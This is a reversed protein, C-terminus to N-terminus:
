RSFNRETSGRQRQGVPLILLGFTNEKREDDIINEIAIVAGGDPLADYVKNIFTQKNEENMGHLINGATMVDGKPLDDKFFDGSVFRIRDQLHFQAIKKKAVSEVQPLCFHHM